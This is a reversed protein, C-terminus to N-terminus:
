PMLSVCKLAILKLRKRVEENKPPHAAVSYLVRPCRPNKTIRGVMGFHALNELITEVFFDDSLPPWGM